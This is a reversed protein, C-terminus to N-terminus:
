RSWRKLWNMQEKRTRLKKVEPNGPGEECLRPDVRIMERAEAIAKFLKKNDAPGVHKRLVTELRDKLPQPLDQEHIWCFTTWLKYGEQKNLGVLDPILTSSRFVAVLMPSDWPLRVRCRLLQYRLDLVSKLWQCSSIMWLLTNLLIISNADRDVPNQSVAAAWDHCFQVM